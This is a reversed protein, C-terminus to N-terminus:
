FDEFISFVVSSEINLCAIYVLNQLFHTVILCLKSEYFLLCGPTKKLPAINVVGHLYLWSGDFLNEHYRWESRACFFLLNVM